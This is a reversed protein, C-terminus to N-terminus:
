GFRKELCSVGASYAQSESLGGERLWVVRNLETPNQFPPRRSSKQHELSNRLHAM